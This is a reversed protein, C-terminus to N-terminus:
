VRYMSAHEAAIDSWDHNTEATERNQTGISDLEELSFESLRKLGEDLDDYLINDPPSVSKISGKDPAVFPVGLTMALLVSGSNFIHKYPFVAADAASFYLPVEEDPIYEMHLHVTDDGRALQEIEDRLDTYKPNGAVVLCAGDEDLAQFREILLPVQKYPRIVGFFLYVRECDDVGIAERAEERSYSQDEYLPRYNGHAVEYVEPLSVDLYSEIEERTRSDWVQVGDVTRLLRRSVWQDLDEYRQEHNCRNHITWVVRECVISAMWVQLLFVIAAVHCVLRSLPLSYLQRKSGFLFYPHTWHVHLVDVRSLIVQLLLPSFPINWREGIVEVGEERLASSLLEQYQNGSFFPAFMVKM